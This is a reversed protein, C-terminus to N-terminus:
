LRYIIVSIQRSNSSGRGLGEGVRLPASINSTELPFILTKFGRVGSAVVRSVRAVCHSRRAPSLNPSLNKIETSSVNIQYVRRSTLSLMFIELEEEM